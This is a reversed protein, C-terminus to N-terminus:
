VFSTLGEELSCSLILIPLARVRSPADAAQTPSRQSAQTESVLRAELLVAGPRSCLMHATLHHRAGSKLAPVPLQLQGPQWSEGGAWFM